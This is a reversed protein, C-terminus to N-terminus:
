DVLVTKGSGLNINQCPDPSISANMNGKFSISNLYLTGVMNLSTPSGSFTLNSNPLQVRGTLQIFNGSGNVSMPFRTNTKTAAQYILMGGGLSGCTSGGSSSNLTVSGSLQFNQDVGIILTVGSGNLTKGANDFGSNFYYTGATLTNNSCTMTVKSAYTGPLFTALNNICSPVTRITPWPAPIYAPIIPLPLGSSIVLPSCSGCDSTSNNYVMITAGSASANIGSQHTTSIGGGILVSGGTVNLTNNGNMSLSGDVIISDGSSLNGAIAVKSINLSNIGFIPLFFTDWKSSVVVQSCNIQLQSNPCSVNVSTLITFGYPNTIPFQDGGSQCTLFNQSCALAESDAVSQLQAQRMYVFGMDIAFTLM